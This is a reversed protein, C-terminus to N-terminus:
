LRFGRTVLDQVNLPRSQVGLVALPKLDERAGMCVVAYVCVCVLCVCAHLVYKAYLRGVHKQRPSIM